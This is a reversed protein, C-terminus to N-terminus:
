TQAAQSSKRWRDTWRHLMAPSLFLIYFTMMQVSFYILDKMLIAISLHFVIGYLIAYIRTKRWLFIVPAFVEFSLSGYAMVWWFPAPLFNVCWAAIPTRFPGQAHTWLIDPRSLWDGHVVKCVGAGLYMILLSAQIVRTPWASTMGDDDPGDGFVVGLRGMALIFFMAVYVKNITFASPQDVMQAYVAGLLMVWVLVNRAIGVIFMLAFVVFTIVVPWVWQAPLLPAAHPYNTSLTEATLRFGHDTLWFQWHPLQYTLYFLFTAAFVGEFIRLAIPDHREFWKDVFWSCMNAFRAAVLRLQSGVEIM